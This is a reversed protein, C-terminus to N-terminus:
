SHAQAVRAVAKHPKKGALERVQEVTVGIMAGTRALGRSWRGRLGGDPRPANAVLAEIKRVLQPTPDGKVAFDDICEKPAEDPLWPLASLVIVPVQSRVRKIERAVAGGDMEPMQYDLVVADYNHTRFARLGKRGGGATTVRFGFSELLIKRVKLGDLDDDICLLNVRQQRM